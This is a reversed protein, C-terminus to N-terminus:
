PYLSSVYAVLDIMEAMYRRSLREREGSSLTRPDVVVGGKAGGMPINVVACKYTMWFALAKIEDVTVDQHFRIGGKAPGRVMNHQVRFARFNRITGDDMRVPLLVETIRRPLKTMAILGALFIIVSIVGAFIPRDIFFKSLNM